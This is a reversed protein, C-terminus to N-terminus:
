SAEPAMADLSRRATARSDGLGCTKGADPPCWQYRWGPGNTPRYVVDGRLGRAAARRSLEDATKTSM